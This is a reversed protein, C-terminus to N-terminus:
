QLCYNNVFAFVQAQKYAADATFLGNLYELAESCKDDQFAADALAMRLSEIMDM